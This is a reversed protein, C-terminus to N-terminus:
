NKGHSIMTEVVAYIAEKEKQPLRAIKEALLSAKVEYDATVVDRLIVNSSVQLTNLILLLTELAPIKEGREIAGIYNPSLGTKEALDEQRWKKQLRAARLNAGITDLKM